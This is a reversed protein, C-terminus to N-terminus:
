ASRIQYYWSLANLGKRLLMLTPEPWKRAEIIDQVCVEAVKREVKRGTDIDGVEQLTRQLAKFREQAKMAAEVRSESEEGDHGRVAFLNQARASPFPLGKLALYRVIDQAYRIGAEHQDERITGDLWMLGLTYGRRPDTALEEPTKGQFPIINDRRIRQEVVVSRAESETM